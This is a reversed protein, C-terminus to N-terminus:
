FTNLQGQPPSYRTSRGTLCSPSRSSSSSCNTGPSSSTRSANRFGPFRFASTGPVVWRRRPPRLYCPQFYCLRRYFQCKNNFTGNCRFAMIYRLGRTSLSPCTVYRRGRTSLSALGSEASVHHLLHLVRNREAALATGTETTTWCTSCEARGTVRWCSCGNLLELIFIKVIYRVLTCRLRGFLLDSHRWLTTGSQPTANRKTSFHWPANRM